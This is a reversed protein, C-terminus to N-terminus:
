HKNKPIIINLSNPHIKVGFTNSEYLPTGDIHCMEPKSTEVLVENAKYIQVYKSKDIKKLILLIANYIISKLPLREVFCVDLLGDKICAKPAIVTQYGFQNANAFTVMLLKKQFTKGNISVTYINDNYSFYSNLVAKFYAFFGRKTHAFKEAVVADFGIGAISVFFHENLNATDIKIIEFDNIVDLAKNLSTPIRLFHALGNGSGYPIIALATNSNKLPQAIENITGDGGVAVVADYAKNVAEKSLAAAHLPFETFVIDYSFKEHAMNNHIFNELFLKDKTGSIPNIIFRIRKKDGM